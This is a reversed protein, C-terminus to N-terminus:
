HNSLLPSTIHCTLVGTCGYQPPGVQSSEEVLGFARHHAFSIEMYAKLEDETLSGSFYHEEKGYWRKAIETTHGAQLDLLAVREQTVERAVTKQSMYTLVQRTDSLGLGKPFEKLCVGVLQRLGGSLDESDFLRGLLSFLYTRDQELMTEDIGLYSALVLEIPRIILIYMLIIWSLDQPYVRAIAKDGSGSYSTKNAFLVTIAHDDYTFINRIRGAHNVLLCRTLEPGRPPQGGTLYMAVLLAKLFAASSQLATRIKKHHWVMKGDLVKGFRESNLVSKLADKAIETVRINSSHRTFNYNGNREALNDRLGTWYGTFKKPVGLAEYMEEARDHVVKISAKMLKSVENVTIKNGEFMFSQGEKDCWMFKPMYNGSNALKAALHVMRRVWAFPTGGLESVWPMETEVAAYLTLAPGQREPDEESTKARGVARFLIVSRIMFQVGALFPGVAGPDAVIGNGTANAYVCYALLAPPVPSTSPFPGTIIAYSLHVVYPLLSDATRNEDLADKLFEAAELQADTLTFVPNASTEIGSVIFALFQTWVRTYRDFSEDAALNGHAKRYAGDSRRCLPIASYLRRLISEFAVHRPIM